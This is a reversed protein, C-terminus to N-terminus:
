AGVTEEVEPLDDGEINKQVIAAVADVFAQPADPLLAAVLQGFEGRDIYGFAPVQAQGGAQVVAGFGQLIAAAAKLADLHGAKVGERLGLVDQYLPGFLQKERQVTLDIVEPQGPAAPAAPPAAPLSQVVPPPAAFGTSTQVAAGQAMAAQAAFADAQAMSPVFAQARVAESQAQAIRAQSVAQAQKSSFYSKVAETASGVSSTIADVVPNGGGGAAQIAQEFVKGQMDMVSSAAGMMTQLMQGTEGARQNALTAYRDAVAVQARANEQAVDRAARAQEQSSAAQTRSFETLFGLMPDQRNQTLVSLKADLKSELSALRQDAAAQDRARDGREREARLENELRVVHAQMALLEPSPGQPKALTETVRRMEERIQTMEHSHKENMREVTARHEAEMRARESAALNDRLQSVESSAVPPPQAWPMGQPPQGWPSPTWPTAWPSAGPWQGWAPQQPAQVGQFAGQPAQGWGTPPAMGMPVQAVQPNVWQNAQAPPWGFDWSMQVGNQDTVSAHFYGDREQGKIVTQLQLVDERTLGVGPQYGDKSPLDVPIQTSGRLRYIVATIPEAMDQLKAPDFGNKKNPPAM